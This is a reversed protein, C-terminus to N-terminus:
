TQNLRAEIKGRGIREHHNLFTLSFDNNTLIKYDFYLSLNLIQEFEVRRSKKEKDDGRGTSEDM